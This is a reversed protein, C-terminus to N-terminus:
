PASCCLVTNLLQGFAHGAHSEGDAENPKGHQEAAAAAADAAQRALSPDVVEVYGAASCIFCWCSHPWALGPFSQFGSM